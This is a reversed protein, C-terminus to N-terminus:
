PGYYSLLKSIDPSGAEILQVPTLMNGRKGHLLRDPLTVLGQGLLLQNFAATARYIGTQQILHLANQTGDIGGIFVKPDTKSHGANLFAQYAGEAASDEVAVVVNIDPHAQLVTATKSLGDTASIADQTAVITARPATAKLAAEIGSLRQQAYTAPSYSLVLVNATGGLKENIWKGAAKGLIVGSQKHPFGLTADQGPVSAAFTVWKIGAARAQKAVQGLVQADLASVVLASVGQQIWTKLTSVQQSQDTGPDNILLKYGRKKAEQKAIRFLNLVVPAKSANPFSIAIMKQKDSAAPRASASSASIAALLAVGVALAFLSLRLGERRSKVVGLRRLPSVDDRTM